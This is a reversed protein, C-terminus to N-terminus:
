FIRRQRGIGRAYDKRSIGKVQPPMWESRRQEGCDCREIGGGIQRWTHEHGAKQKPPPERFVYQTHPHYVCECQDCKVALPEGPGNGGPIIQASPNKCRPCPKKEPTLDPKSVTIPPKENAKSKAEKEKKDELKWYEILGLEDSHSQLWIAAQSVADAIDDHQANPFQTLEEIAKQTWAGSRPFWWNGAEFEPAAAVLRATKSDKPTIAVIGPIEDQLHSIIAPGNSKDEILVASIPEYATRAFRLENETGTLDLHSRTVHLVYRRSGVIGLVLIVVYDSTSKDKFAADVSIIRREFREPLGPDAVGTKPDKGGYLLVDSVRIINGELPAPRQQHQGSWVLRNRQRQKVVRPPFRKPDLCEDKRRTVVRGSVPFVWREDEEALLPLRIHEWEGPDQELVFGTPDAEHLRQMIMVIPSNAPDNLRQPLMHQFWDLVEGRKSDSYADDVSLPDDILIFDGGRGMARSNTSAALMAGGCDNTFEAALSRDSSLKFRDGFLDQFWSSAILRRRSLNFSTSLDIEYSVCLFTAQPRTIWVWVPFCIGVISSKSFRPPCNVLLRPTEGRAVLQLHECILDHWKTWVLKSGPHLVKWASRCFAGLDQSLKEAVYPKARFIQSFDM